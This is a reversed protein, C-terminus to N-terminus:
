LQINTLIINNGVLQGSTVGGGIVIDFTNADGRTFTITNNSSEFAATEIRYFSGSEGDLAAADVSTVQAGDGVFRNASITNSSFDDTVTINDVTLNDFDSITTNFVDGNDATLQLTNNAGYWATATTIGNVIGNLDLDFTSSDDRTFIATNGILTASTVSTNDHIQVDFTSSDDRTFTITNNSNDFSASSVSTNDHIQVDFTTADTKTFTLTNNSGAFAASSVGANVDVEVKGGDDQLLTLTNNATNFSASLIIDNVLANVDIEVTSLDSKTLIITNGVLSGSTVGGSVTVDFTNADGRTFTITNNSSEFSATEIRYFSGGEGDLARADVATVQSGDGIFRNATLTNAGGDDTITINDVSINNFNNITTDILDGNDAILQFTNNSGYWAANTTIGNVLGNLDLDYSTSDDRTFVATNGVLTASSTFTINSYSSGDNTITWRNDSENWLFYVNADAGRDVELGANVRGSDQGSAVTIIADNVILSSTDISTQTGTVVLNGEVVVDSTFTAGANFSSINLSEVFSKTVRDDIASNARAVTYYLDSGENLNSTTFADLTVSTELITGNSLHLKNKGSPDDFNFQTVGTPIVTDFQGGSSLIIQLSSESAEFQINSIGSVATQDITIVGTNSITADGTVTTTTWFSGNYILLDGQNPNAVNVDGTLLSLSSIIQSAVGANILTPTDQASSVVEGSDKKDVTVNVGKSRNVTVDVM